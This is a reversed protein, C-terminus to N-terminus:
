GTESALLKRRRELKRLRRQLENWAATEVREYETGALDRLRESYARWAERTGAELEPLEENEQIIASM